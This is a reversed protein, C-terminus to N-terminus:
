VVNLIQFILHLASAWLEVRIAQSCILVLCFLPSNTRMDLRVTPIFAASFNMCVEVSEHDTSWPPVIVRGKVLSTGALLDQLSTPAQACKALSAGYTGELLLGMSQRVLGAPDLCLDFVTGDLRRPMLHDVIMTAEHKTGYYTFLKNGSTVNSACVM